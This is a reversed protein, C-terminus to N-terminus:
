NKYKTSRNYKGISGFNNHSYLSKDSTFASVDIWIEDGIILDQLRKANGQSTVFSHLDVGYFRKNTDNFIIEYYNNKSIIKKISFLQFNENYRTEM